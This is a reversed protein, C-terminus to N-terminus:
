WGQVSCRRWLLIKRVSLFTENFGHEQKNEPEMGRFKEGRAGLLLRPKLLSPFATKMLQEGPSPLEGHEPAASLPPRGHWGRVTCPCREGRHHETIGPAVWPRHATNREGRARQTLSNIDSRHQNPHHPRVGGSPKPRLSTWPYM